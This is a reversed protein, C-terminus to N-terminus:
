NATLGVVVCENETDSVEPITFMFSTYYGGVEGTNIADPIETLTSTDYNYIYLSVSYGSASVPTVSEVAVSLGQSIPMFNGADSGSYADGVIYEDDDKKAYISVLFAQANDIDPEGDVIECLAVNVPLGFDGGGGGGGSTQQLWEEGDYMYGNCTDWEYFTSGPMIGRSAGPKDEQSSGRFMKVGTPSQNVQIM